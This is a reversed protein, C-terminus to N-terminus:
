RGDSDGLRAEHSPHSVLFRTGHHKTGISEDVGCTIGPLRQGCRRDSYGGVLSSYGCSCGFALVLSSRLSSRALVPALPLRPMLVALRVSGVTVAAPLGMNTASDPVPGATTM